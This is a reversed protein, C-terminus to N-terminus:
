CIKAVSGRETLECRIGICNDKLEVDHDKEFILSFLLESATIGMKKLPLAMTTLEPVLYASLPDNDFAIVSIDKGVTYGNSHMCSYLGSAIKDSFCFVGTVDTDLLQVAAEEGGERTWSSSIFLCEEEPIGSEGLAAKVGRRRLVTHLNDKEGMIFALKRHGRSILYRVADAAGNEDDVVVSPVKENTEQIYITVAPISYNGPIKNVIRGHAGIYILGTLQMSETEDLIPGLVPDIMEENNFWIDSWRSYLRLNFLMSKYGHEEVCGMIGEIIAPTAFHNIEEAIIGIVGTNRNRLGRAIQNPKYGYKQIAELVLDTTAKSAKGKGNLVNSVTAVSVGCEKAIDKITVM